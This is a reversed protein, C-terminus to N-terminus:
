KPKTMELVIVLLLMLLISVCRRIMIRLNTEQDNAYVGSLEQGVHRGVVDMRQCREQALADNEEVARHAGHNLM